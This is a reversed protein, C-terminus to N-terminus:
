RTNVSLEGKKMGFTLALCVPIPNAAIWEGNKLRVQLSDKQEDTLLFTLIGFDIERDVCTERVM